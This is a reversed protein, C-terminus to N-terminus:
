CHNIKTSSEGQDFKAGQDPGQEKSMYIEQKQPLQQSLPLPPSTLHQQPEPLLQQQPRELYVGSSERIAEMDSSQQSMAPLSNGAQSAELHAYLHQRSVIQVNHQSLLSRPVLVLEENLVDQPSGPAARYMPIMGQNQAQIHPGTTLPSVVEGPTIHVGIIKSHESAKRRRIGYWCCAIVLVVLVFLCVLLIVVWITSFLSYDM